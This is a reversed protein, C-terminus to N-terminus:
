GSDGAGDVLVEGPEVFVRLALARATSLVSCAAKRGSAEDAVSNADKSGEGIVLGM